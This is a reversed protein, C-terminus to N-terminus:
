IHQCLDIWAFHKPILIVVQIM